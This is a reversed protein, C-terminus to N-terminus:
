STTPALSITVTTPCKKVDVKGAYRAKVTGTYRGDVSRTLSIATTGAGCVSAVPAVDDVAWQDAAATVPLYSDCLPVCQLWCVGRNCSYAVKTAPGGGSATGRYGTIRAPNLAAPVDAPILTLDPGIVPVLELRNENLSASCNPGRELKPIASWRGHYAGTSPDLVLDVSLTEPLCPNPSSACGPCATSTHGIRATGIRFPPVGFQHFEPCDGHACFLTGHAIAGQDAQAIGDVHHRVVTGTVQYALVRNPDLVPPERPTPAVRSM